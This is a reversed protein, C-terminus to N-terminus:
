AFSVPCTHRSCLPACLSGTTPACTVVPHRDDGGEEQGDNAPYPRLRPLMGGPKRHCAPRTRALARSRVHSSYTASCACSHTLCPLPRREAPMCDRASGQCLLRAPRARARSRAHPGLDQTVPRAAPRLHAEVDGAGGEVLQGVDHVLALPAGIGALDKALLARTLLSCVHVQSPRGAGSSATAHRQPILAAADTSCRQAEVARSSSSPCRKSGSAHTYALGLDPFRQIAPEDCAIRMHMHERDGDQATEARIAWGTSGRM